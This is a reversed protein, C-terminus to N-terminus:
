VKVDCLVKVVNEILLIDDVYLVLFVVKDDIVCKYVYHEDVNQEFDYSKIM